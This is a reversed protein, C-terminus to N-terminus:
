TLRVGQFPTSKLLMTQEEAEAAKKEKKAFGCGAVLLVGILLLSIITAKMCRLYAM